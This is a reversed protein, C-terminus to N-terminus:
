WRDKRVEWDMTPRGRGSNCESSFFFLLPRFPPRDVRVYSHGGSRAVVPVDNQAGCRVAVAVGDTDTPYVIAAPRWVVAPRENYPRAATSYNSSSSTITVLGASSLCTDLSGTDARVDLELWHDLPAALVSESLLLATSLLVSLGSVGRGVMM